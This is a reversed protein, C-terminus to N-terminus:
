GGLDRCDAGERLDNVAPHVRMTFLREDPIHEEGEGRKIREYGVFVQWEQGSELRFDRYKLGDPEDYLDPRFILVQPSMSQAGLVFSTQRNHPFDFDTPNLTPYSGVMRLKRESLYNAEALPERTKSKSVILYPNRVLVPERRTNRWDVALVLADSEYPGLGRAVCYASPSAPSADGNDLLGALFPLLLGGAIGGFIALVTTRLDRGFDDFFRRRRTVRNNSDDM